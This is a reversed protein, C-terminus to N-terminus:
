TAKAPLALGACEARLREIGDLMRFVRVTEDPRLSRGVGHEARSLSMLAVNALLCRQLQSLRPRRHRAAIGPAVSDPTRASIPAM